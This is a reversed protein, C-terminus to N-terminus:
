KKEPAVPAAAKAAAAKIETVANNAVTLTVKEGAKVSKLTAIAKADVNFTKNEKEGKITITKATADVSVIEADVNEAKVPATAAVPAKAAEVPKKTEEAVAVGTVFVLSLLLASKKMKTNRRPCFTTAAKRRRATYYCSAHWHRRPVVLAQNPLSNKSALGRQIEFAQVNEYLPQEM